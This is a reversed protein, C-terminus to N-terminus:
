WTLEDLSFLQPDLDPNVEMEEIILLTESDVKMKDSIRTKVGVERGGFTEAELVVMEKLLRGSRTSYEGRWVLFTEQDIWLKERPYPVKRTKATLELVWCPRGQRSEEGVLEVEYQSARDKGGTMDEYSIDSGMMSQRLASGQMRILEEADPYYLFIEDATRLIKQGREAPSTFEILSEDEGRSWSEFTSVKKGFRDTIEMRGVAASTEFTQQEDALRLIDDGTLDASEQAGALTGALFLVVTMVLALGKKQRAARKETRRMFIMNRMFM